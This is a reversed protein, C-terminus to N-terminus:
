GHMEVPVTIQYKNNLKGGKCLMRKGTGFNIRTPELRQLWAYGQREALWFFLRKVKISECHELLFQLKRPSLSTLGQMLEDAHEFSLKDPVEALAELVAREPSSLRLPPLDERWPHSVQLNERAIVEDQWIRGCGHWVFNVELLLKNLWRPAKDPSYLHLTTEKGSSLYHAFGQLALASLGGVVVPQAMMRQLSCVVGYGSLQVNAQSYVGGLRSVLRGSKVANDLAHRSFGQGLLWQKTAVLGHPLVKDLSQQQDKKGM